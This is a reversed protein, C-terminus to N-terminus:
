RTQLSRAFLAGDLQPKVVSRTELAALQGRLEAVLARERQLADLLDTSFPDELPVAAQSAVRRRRRLGSNTLGRSSDLSDASHSDEDEHPLAALAAVRWRSRLGSCNPVSSAAPRPKAYLM